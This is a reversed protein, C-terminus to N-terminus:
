KSKKKKKGKTPLPTNLAKKMLEEFSLNTKAIDQSAPVKEKKKM